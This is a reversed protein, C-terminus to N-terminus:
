YSKIINVGKISDHGPACVLCPGQGPNMVLHQSKFTLHLNKGNESSISIYANQINIQKIPFHNWILKWDNLVVGSGNRLWKWM